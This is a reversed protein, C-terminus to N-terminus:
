SSMFSRVSFCLSRAHPPYPALYKPIQFTMPSEWTVMPKLELTTVQIIQPYGWKLFDGNLTWPPVMDKNGREGM